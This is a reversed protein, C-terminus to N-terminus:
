KKQGAKLNKCEEYWDREDYYEDPLRYPREYEVMMYLTKRQKLDLKDFPKNEFVSDWNFSEGTKKYTLTPKIECFTDFVVKPYVNEDFDQCNKIAKGWSDNKSGLIGKIEGKFEEAYSKMSLKESMEHAKKIEPYEDFKFM